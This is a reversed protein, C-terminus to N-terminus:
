TLQPRRRTRARRQAWIMFCPRCCDKRQDRWDEAGTSNSLPMTGMFLMVCVLSSLVGCGAECLLSLMRNPMLCTAPLLGLPDHGLVEGNTAWRVYLSLFLASALLNRAVILHCSIHPLEGRCRGRRAAGHVRAQGHRLLARPGDDRPAAAAAGGPRRQAASQACM